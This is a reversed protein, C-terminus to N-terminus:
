SLFFLFIYHDNFLLEHACAAYKQQKIGKRAIAWRMFESDPTELFIKEKERERESHAPRMYRYYISMRDCLIDM